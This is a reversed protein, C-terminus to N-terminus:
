SGLAEGRPTSATPEPPEADGGAESPETDAGVRVPVQPLQGALSRLVQAAVAMQCVVSIRQALNANCELKLVM